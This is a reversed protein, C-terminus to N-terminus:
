REDESGPDDWSVDSVDKQVNGERVDSGFLKDFESESLTPGPDKYEVKYDDFGSLECLSVGDKSFNTEFDKWIEFRPTGPKYGMWEQKICDDDDVAVDELAAIGQEPDGNWLMEALESRETSCEWTMQEALDTCMQLWDMDMFINAALSDLEAADLGGNQLLQATKYAVFPKLQRFEIETVKETGDARIAGHCEEVVSVAKGQDTTLLLTDVGSSCDTSQELFDSLRMGRVNSLLGYSAPADTGAESVKAAFVAGTGLASDFANGIGKVEAAHILSDLKNNRCDAMNRDNMLNDKSISVGALSEREAQLYEAFDPYFTIFPDEGVVMVLETREDAALEDAMARVEAPSFGDGQLWADNEVFYMGTESEMIEKEIFNLFRERLVANVAAIAPKGDFQSANFVSWYGVCRPIMRLNQTDDSAPSSKDKEKSSDKVPYMKWKEVICSKAGKQLKWGVKKAQNFTVWRPDNYGKIIAMVALHMRNRGHYTSGTVPNHPSASDAWPKLWSFGGKGMEEIVHDVIEKRQDAVRDSTKGAM